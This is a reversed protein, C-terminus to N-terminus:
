RSRENLGGLCTTLNLIGHLRNNKIVPLTYQNSKLMQALAQGATMGPNISILKTVMLEEAKLDGRGEAIARGLIDSVSVIGKVYGKELIFVHRNNNDRMIKAIEAQNAEKNTTPARELKLESVKKM